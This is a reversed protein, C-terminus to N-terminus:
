SIVHVQDGVALHDWIPSPTPRGCASAAQHTVSGHRPGSARSHNRWRTTPTGRCPTSRWARARRRATPSPSSATSPARASATTRRRRCTRPTCPTSAPTPNHGHRPSPWSGCSPATRACGPASTPGTSSRVTRPRPAPRRTPHRSRPRPARSRAARRRPRLRRDRRRQQDWAPWGVPSATMALGALRDGRRGHRASAVLAAEM